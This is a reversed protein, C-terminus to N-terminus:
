VLRLTVSFDSNSQYKGGNKQKSSERITGRSTNWGGDNEEVVVVVVSKVQQGQAAETEQNAITL